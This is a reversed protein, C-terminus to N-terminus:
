TASSHKWLMTRRRQGATTHEPLCTERLQNTDSVCCLVVCCSLINLICKKTKYALSRIAGECVCLAFLFCCISFFYLIFNLLLTSLVYDYCEVWLKTAASQFSRDGRTKLHTRPVSSGFPEASTYSTVLTM